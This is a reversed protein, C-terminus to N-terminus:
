LVAGEATMEALVRAAAARPDPDQVVPRGVILLDSGARVAEAVTAVRAQDDGAVPASRIGPTAILFGAPCAARVAAAEHASVV